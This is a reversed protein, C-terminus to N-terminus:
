TILAVGISPGGGPLQVPPSNVFRRDTPQFSVMPFAVNDQHHWTRNIAIPSPLVSDPSVWFTDAPGAAGVTVFKTTPSSLEYDTSVRRYEIMWFSGKPATYLVKEAAEYIPIGANRAAILTEYTMRYPTELTSGLSSDAAVVPALPDAAASTPTLVGVGIAVVAVGGALARATSGWM